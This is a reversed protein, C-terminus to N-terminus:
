QATPQTAPQAAEQARALREQAQRTLHPTLGIMRQMIMLQARHHMEHEKVGLLMELRSKTPPQAGPPMEVSEALFSEDLGDLYSAFKAGEDKLLAILESKTRPKAEEAANNRFLDPFNVKTLSDIHNQQIYMQIAAITGIHALTQAVSRSDPSPKFSYSKEPIEEAIQVTNNRVTRFSAAMQRGGYYTM